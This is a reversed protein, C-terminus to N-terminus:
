GKRGFSKKAEVTADSGEHRNLSKTVMVIRRSPNSDDPTSNVKSSPMSEAFARQVASAMSDLLVDGNKPNNVHLHIAVTKEDIAEVCASRNAPKWQDPCTSVVNGVEPLKEVVSQVKGAYSM